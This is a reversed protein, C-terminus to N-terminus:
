PALGILRMVDTFRASWDDFVIDSPNQLTLEGEVRLFMWAGAPEMGVPHVLHLGDAQLILELAQEPDDAVAMQYTGGVHRPMESTNDRSLYDTLKWNVGDPPPQQPPATIGWRRRTPDILLLLACCVEHQNWITGSLAGLWNLTSCPFLPFGFPEHRPVGDSEPLVVVPGASGEKLHVNLLERYTNM